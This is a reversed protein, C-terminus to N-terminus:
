GAFSVVTLGKLSEPMQFDTTRARYWAPDHGKYIRTVKAEPFRLDQTFYRRVADSVNLTRDM